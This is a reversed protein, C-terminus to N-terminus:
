PRSTFEIQEAFRFIREVYGETEPFPPLGNYKRVAGHGANYAALINILQDGDVKRTLKKNTCNLAAASHIADVPNWVDARGDGDGDIGYQEWTKPMFQAIGLAGARSVADVDWSSEAAIQAALVEPPVAPCRKAAALIIPEYAAPVKMPGLLGRSQLHGSAWDWATLAGVTLAGLLLVILVLRRM